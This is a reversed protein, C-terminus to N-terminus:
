AAGELYAAAKRLLEPRDRFAGLGVNCQSCLLGRVAGVAHCHDIQADRGSSFQMDCLACRGCSAQIIEDLEDTTLGYRGALWKRNGPQTRTCEICQYARGGPEAASKHFEKIPRLKRCLSCDRAILSMPPPQPRRSVGHKRMHHQVVCSKIGLKRAVEVATLGDAYLRLAESVNFSITHQHMIGLKRLHRCVATETVGMRAAIKPASMGGKYLRAAEQVDTKLAVM